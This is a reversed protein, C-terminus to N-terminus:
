QVWYVKTMDLSSPDLTPLTVTRQQELIVQRITSRYFCFTIPIRNEIGYLTCHSIFEQSKWCFRNPISCRSCRGLTEILDM